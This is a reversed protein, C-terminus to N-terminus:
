EAKSTRARQHERPRVCSAARHCVMFYLYFVQQQEKQKARYVRLPERSQAMLQRLSGAAHAARGSRVLADSTLETTSWTLSLNPKPPESSGAAPTGSASAGAASAGAASAGASSSAGFDESSPQLSPRGLSISRKSTHFSLCCFTFSKRRKM